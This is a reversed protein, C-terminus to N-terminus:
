SSVGKLLVDRALNLRTAFYESGGADPHVRKMLRTYAEQIEAVSAHPSVGLIQAAETRSLSTSASEAPSHPTHKLYKWLLLLEVITAAFGLLRLM